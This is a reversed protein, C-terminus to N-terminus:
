PDIRLQQLKWDNGEKFFNVNITGPKKAFKGKYVLLGNMPGFTSKSEDLEKSQYAGYVKHGGIDLYLTKFTQETCIAEVQKAYDKFFAKWSKANYAQMAAEVKADCAKITEKDAGQVEGFAPALALLGAATLTSFFRRTM